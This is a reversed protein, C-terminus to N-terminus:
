CFYLTSKKHHWHQCQNITYFSGNKLINEYTHRAACRGVPRLFLFGNLQLIAVWLWSRIPFIAVNQSKGKGFINWNFTAAKVGSFGNSLSKIANCV